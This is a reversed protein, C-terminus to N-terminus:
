ESLSEALIQVDVLGHQLCWTRTHQEIGMDKYNLFLQEGAAIDRVAKHYLVGDEVVTHCNHNKGHNIHFSHGLLYTLPPGDTREVPVGALFWSMMKQVHAESSPDIQSFHKVLDDIASAGRIRIAVTGQEDVGGDSIFDATEKIPDVRVVAGKAVPMITFRGVGVDPISSPGMNVPIAFGAVSHMDWPQLLRQKGM